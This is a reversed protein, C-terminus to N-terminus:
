DVCRVHGQSKLVASVRHSAERKELVRQQWSGSGVGHVRRALPTPYLAFRQRVTSLNSEQAGNGSIVVIMGVVSRSPM